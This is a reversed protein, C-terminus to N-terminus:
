MASQNSDLSNMYPQSRSLFLLLAFSYQTHSITLEYDPSCFILYTVSKWFQVIQDPHKVMGRCLSYVCVYTKSLGNRARLFGPTRKQAAVEGLFGDQFDTSPSLGKKLKWAKTHTHTHTHTHIHANNTKLVSWFRTSQLQNFSLSFFLSLSLATDRPNRPIGIFGM